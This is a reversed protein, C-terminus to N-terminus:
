VTSEQQISSSSSSSSSSSCNSSSSSSNINNNVVIQQNLKPGPRNSAVQRPRKDRGNNGRNNSHTEGKVTDTDRTFINETTERETKDRQIDMLIRYM